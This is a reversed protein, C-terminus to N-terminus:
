YSIVSVLPNYEYFPKWILNDKNVGLTSKVDNKASTQTVAVSKWTEVVRRLIRNNKLLATIQITKVGGFELEQRKLLEKTVRGFAGILIPIITVKM